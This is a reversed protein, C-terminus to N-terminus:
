SSPKKPKLESKKVSIDLKKAIQAIQSRMERQTLTLEPRILLYILFGVVPLAAVLIICFLMFGFSRSRLLVDRTTYFVLFIIIAGALLLSGQLMRVVPDDALFPAFGNLFEFLSSM